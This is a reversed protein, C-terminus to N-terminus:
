VIRQIFEARDNNGRKKWLGVEKFIANSPLLFQIAVKVNIEKHWEWAEEHNIIVCSLIDGKIIGLRKIEKLKRAFGGKSLIEHLKRKNVSKIWGTYDYINKVTKESFSFMMKEAGEFNFFIESLLENAEDYILTRGEYSFVRHGNADDYSKLLPLEIIKIINQDGICCSLNFQFGLVLENSFIKFNPTIHGFLKFHKGILLVLIKEHAMEFYLYNDDNIRLNFTDGNNNPLPIKPSILHNLFVMTFIIMANLKKLPSTMSVNLFFPAYIFAKALKEFLTESSFFDLPFDIKYIDLGSRLNEPQQFKLRSIFNRQNRLFSNKTLKHNWKNLTTMGQPLTFLTNVSALLNLDLTKYSTFLEYELKRKKILYLLFDLAKQSLKTLKKNTKRKIIEPFDWKKQLSQSKPNPKKELNRNFPSRTKRPVQKPNPILFKNDNFSKIELKEYIQEILKKPNPHFNKMLPCIKYNVFEKIKIFNQFYQLFATFVEPEKFVSKKKLSIEFGINNEGFIANKRILIFYKIFDKSFFGENEFSFDFSNDYIIFFENNEFFQRQFYLTLFKENKLKLKMCFFLLNQSTKMSNKFGNIIKYDFLNSNYEKIHKPEILYHLILRFNFPLSLFAKFRQKKAKHQLILMKEDNRLLKYNTHNFFNSINIKLSSKVEFDELYFFNHNKENEPQLKNRYFLEDYDKFINNSSILFCMSLRNKKFREIFKQRYYDSNKLKSIKKTIKNTKSESKPLVWFKKMKLFEKKEIIKKELNKLIEEKNINNLSARKIPAGNKEMSISPSMISDFSFKSEEFTEHSKMDPELMKFNPSLEGKKEPIDELQFFNEIASLSRSMSSRPEMIKEGKIENCAKTKLSLNNEVPEDKDYIRSSVMNECFSLSTKKTLKSKDKELNKKEHEEKLQKFTKLTKPHKQQTLVVNMDDQTKIQGCAKDKKNKQEIFTSIYCNITSIRICEFWDRAVDAKDIGICFSKYHNKKSKSDLGFCFRSGIQGFWKLEYTTLDLIKDTKKACSKAITFIKMGYNLEMFREGWIRLTQSRVYLSGKKILSALSLNSSPFLTAVTDVYIKASIEPTLNRIQCFEIQEEEPKLEKGMPLILPFYQKRESESAYHKLLNSALFNLKIKILLSIDSFNDHIYQMAKFLEPPISFSKPPLLPAPKM